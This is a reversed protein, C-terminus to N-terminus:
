RAATETTSRMATPLRRTSSTSLWSPREAQKTFPNRRIIGLQDNMLEVLKSFMADAASAKRQLNSLVGREGESAVMDVRVPRTQGFRWCRRVAQYFQEFSHAPFFTEHACHQLNLGWGAVVPKTVLVRYEGNIFALLKEEKEEDTDSGSVQVSGAILKELLDGEDNLHCWCIASENHDVLAAVKECREDLTRRREERQEELTIAPLDFLVGPRKTKAEIVHETTLLEPLVFRGDDFGLDSPKRVARAWSCVWRWFDKEAHPRMVYKTRGWGLHDKSTQQKFFRTVLDQFGMEGLAESSTGLEIYDNPAATATCLLRYPLTRMFETVEATRKSDFHKIGGSEDAAVGSFDTPNYHKLQEYNTVNVGSHFKGDKVHKCEIGFKAGERVFQPGVTPPTLILVPKGTKRLVNESWVLCMVSNHTVIYRDIVFLGDAAAVRICITEGSGHPEISDIWRGVGRSPTHFADAKRPLSFPNLGPPLSMTVRYSPLGIRTEDNHKYTPEEKVALNATGGLSQVLEVVADALQKSASSFEPTEGSYGDTDMLGQLLDVRQCSSGHMYSEPVFKEPSRLGMLGLLRLADTIPNAYGRPTTLSWKPCQGNDIRNLTIGAPIVSAVREAVEADPKSWSVSGASLAGDGLLVGLLYPHIPVPKEAFQVPKVLPIQWTRSQGHTGYKLQTAAIDRTNMTRWPKERAVDNYSKVNWLHDADCVVASGDSFTVRYLPQLGRPYYGVIETPKGDAGIVANGEQLTGLPAFGNPTLVPCDPRFGKGLGCDAFNAARGRRITWETLSRQFDFLCDPMWVPAFGSEGGLQSKEQIFRLYDDVPNAAETNRPQAGPVTGLRM